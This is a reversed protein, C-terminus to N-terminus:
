SKSNTRKFLLVRPHSTSFTTYNDSVFHLLVEASFTDETGLRPLLFRLLALCNGDCMKTLTKIM